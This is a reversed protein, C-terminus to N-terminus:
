EFGLAALAGNVEALLASNGASQAASREALLKQVQPDGSESAKALKPAAPPPTVARAEGPGATATEAKKEPM